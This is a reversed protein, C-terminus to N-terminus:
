KGFYDENITVPVTKRIDEAAKRVMEPKLKAEIQSKVEDLPKSTRGEVKIVHYGFQSKVPEGIQGVPQSFAAKEFEPVMRGRTFSGLSGGQAGSGADDSEEKAIAAFDGGKALKERLSNAKALAEAETLEKQGTRLPVPSGQFRILIHSAKAEEFEGKHEDYYQSVAAADIKTSGDIGRLLESAMMNDVQLAIRQKIDPNQDLKRRRAEWAYAKMESLQDAFRRKNPGQTQTRLQEPLAAVFAEFQARTMKEDGIALVVADASVNVAPAAAPAPAPTVAVPPKPPVAGPKVSPAPTQAFVAACFAFIPFYRFKM